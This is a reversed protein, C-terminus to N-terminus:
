GGGAPPKFMADDVPVNRRVQLFTRTVNDYPAGDSTMVHFPFQVGGVDRYDDYDVQDVLPILMTDTATLERRLLGTVADFYLTRTTTPDTKVTAVYVDRNGIQDIGVVQLNPPRDKVPRYRMAFRRLREVDSPSLQQVHDKTLIWGVDGDLGQSV